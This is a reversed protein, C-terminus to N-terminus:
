KLHSIKIGFLSNYWSKFDEDTMSRFKSSLCISIFIWYTFNLIDFATVNEVWGYLFNFAVVIGCLKVYYNKSRYVGIFSAWIYIAIYLLMGVLGLWTFINPFCVENKSREHKINYDM